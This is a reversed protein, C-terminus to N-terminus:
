APGAVVVWLPGRGRHQGGAHVLGIRREAGMLDSWDSLGAAATPLASLVGVGVLTDAAGESGPGGVFDLVFACTWSGIAVETLMPHVPHGIWTGSLADKAVGHPILGAVFKSLQKAVADLAQAGYLREVLDEVLQLAM